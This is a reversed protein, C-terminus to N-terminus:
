WSTLNTVRDLGTWGPGLIAIPYLCVANKCIFVRIMTPAQMSRYRIAQLRRQRGVSAVACSALSAWREREGHPQSGGVALASAPHVDKPAEKVSSKASEVSARLGRDLDSDSGRGSAPIVM